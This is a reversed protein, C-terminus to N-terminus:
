EKSCTKRFRKDWPINTNCVICYNPNKSYELKKKKELEIHKISYTNHLSKSKKDISKSSFTHSNACSRSCFRGSGYKETMVKGCKECTHKESIWISLKNQKEQISKEKLVKSIKHGANKHSQYKYSTTGYKNIHHANCSSKHGNFSNPTYFTKGCVCIYEKQM